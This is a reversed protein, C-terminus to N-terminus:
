DSESLKREICLVHCTGGHEANNDEAYLCETCHAALIICYNVLYPRLAVVSLTKKNPKAANQCKLYFMKEALSSNFNPSKFLMIPQQNQLKLSRM